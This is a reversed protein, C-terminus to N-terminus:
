KARRSSRENHNRYPNTMQWERYRVSMGSRESVGSTSSGDRQRRSPRTRWCRAGLRQSRSPGRRKPESPEIASVGTGAGGAIPRDREFRCQPTAGLLALSPGRHVHDSDLQPGGSEALISSPHQPTLTHRASRPRITKSQPFAVPVESYPNMGCAPISIGTLTGTMKLAFM